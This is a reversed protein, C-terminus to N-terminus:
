DEKPPVATQRSKKKIPFRKKGTDRFLDLFYQVMKFHTFKNFDEQYHLGIGQKFLGTNNDQIVRNQNSENFINVRFTGAENLLYELNVDGILYSQNQNVTQNSANEVGFSGTLILRNDLFEKSVDFEFSKDGTLANADLNVALKYSQSLQSLMANIQNAALDLAAGGGAANSGKLPQFRKWLLLSFFQRNLEEPDSKIRNILAKGSEPARPAQIDFQISPRMLSETITLYCFVEQNASRSGLQDSSIEALNAQVKYYSSINLGANYPDGTWTINGGEQIYFNQKVPGMAFNYVGEKVRYTGDLNIEGLNNVQLHINGSGDAIIEDGIREDFIIKLKADTTVRFNLDLDVGTFDLKPQGLNLSTDKNVFQLFSEEDDIDSTGYMPFNIATGKETRLNTRISLNEAYGEINATGTVYGKGYFYDGEKYETNLALFRNLPLPKWKFVPDRKYLDDELNFSLDFNWNEFNDHYISGVVSGTNGEEDIVPINDMYFGYEDITIKGRTKMNVGLIGIYANGGDLQISGSLIPKNPSGTVKIRGNLQGQINNIVQPDMFANAFQIDTQDFVLNFNMVDKTRNVFYDGDFSFTQTNKYILDGILQIKEEGKAWNSQVFVDGVEEQNIVLGKISADGNYGLNEFPNSFEAYGNVEGRLDLPTQLFAGFDQLDLHSVKLRLKDEDSRSVTGNASIFQDDREFMFNRVAVSGDSILIESNNLVDWRKEKLTLYSPLLDFEFSSSSLIRTDWQIKSENKMEPNWIAVTNFVDKTGSTNIGLKQVHVSDNLDFREAKAELNLENNILSQRVYINEGYYNEYGMSPSNLTLNFNRSKEDYDGVLHTGKEITLGPVFISLFDNMENVTVEYTFHNPLSKRKKLKKEKFIAPMVTALQNQFISSIEGFDVKGTFQIDALRSQIRLKDIFEGREVGIVMRPIEYVEEGEQYALGNLTIDGKINDASAGYLNVEFHSKLKSNDVSSFGLNDLIAQTLDISFKMHQNANFDIYGDYVLALNDDEVEVKADLVNDILSGDIIQIKEYSYDMYDFRNVKGIISDFRIDKFSTAEGSLFFEGSLLGYNQDNLLQDLHFQKVVIDYEKAESRRFKFSHNEPNEVFLIGNTCEINGLESNVEQASLVFRNYFGDLRVDKGEFYEFRNTMPDLEIRGGGNAKPLKIEQLDKLDVFAYAFREQFFASRLDNFNPLNITGTLKTKRGTKLEFDAIKMNNVKRTVKAQIDVLQDMGELQPAFYSVDLLSVKSPYLIANFRVSDEFTQLDSLGSMELSFKPLNVKSLPTSFAFDRLHIGSSNIKAKTKFSSLKFGSKENASFSQITAEFDPGTLTLNKAKLQINTFDLHDWDVGFESYYKRNDDYRFRLNELTLDDLVLDLKQSEQDPNSSAFYDALFQFNYEGDEKRRKLHVKGESILADQITIKQFAFDFAKLNLLITEIDAITDKEQDCLLVGNLAVRDFFVIAVEDVKIKTKLEKSLFNTAKEAFYTQVTSTRILFAFLIVILLLFDLSISLLNGIFKVLKTM